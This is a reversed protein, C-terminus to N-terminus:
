EEGSASNDDLSLAGFRGIGANTASPFNDESSDEESASDEGSLSEVDLDTVDEESEQEDEVTIHPVWIGEGSQAHMMVTSIATDPPWFAWGIRGEALARLVGLCILLPSLFLNSYIRVRM